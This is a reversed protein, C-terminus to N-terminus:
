QCKYNCQQYSVIDSSRKKKVNIKAHEYKHWFNQLSPLIKTEEPCVLNETCMKWCGVANRGCIQRIGQCINRLWFVYSKRSPSQVLIRLIKLLVNNQYPYGQRYDLVGASKLSDQVFFLTLAHLWWFELLSCLVKILSLYMELEQNWPFRHMGLQVRWKPLLPHQWFVSPGQLSRWSQDTLHAQLKDLAEMDCLYWKPLVTGTLPKLSTKWCWGFDVFNTLGMGFQTANESRHRM